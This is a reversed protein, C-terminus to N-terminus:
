IDAVELPQTDLNFTPLCTHIFTLFLFLYAPACFKEPHELRQVFSMMMHAHQCPHITAFKGPLFPHDEYTVTKEAHEASVDEKIEEFSLVRKGDHGFGSLFMQPVGKYYVNYVIMLDYYRLTVDTPADTDGVIADIDIGEFDEADDAMAEDLDVVKASTVEGMQIWGDPTETENEVEAALDKVRKECLVGRNVLYQKDAPLFDHRRSADASSWSWRPCLAILADGAAVFEDPTLTGTKMLTSTHSVARYPTVIKMYRQYLANKM